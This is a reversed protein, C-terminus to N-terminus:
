LGGSFHLMQDKTLPVQVSQEHFDLELNFLHAYWFKIEIKILIFM